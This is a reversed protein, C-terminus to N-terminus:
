ILFVPNGKLKLLYTGNIGLKDPLTVVRRTNPLGNTNSVM